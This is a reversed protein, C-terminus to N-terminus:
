CFTLDLLFTKWLSSVHDLSNLIDKENKWTDASEKVTRQRCVKIAVITGKRTTEKFVLTRDTKAILINLPRARPIKRDEETKGGDEATKGGDQGNRKRSDSRPKIAAAKDSRETPLSIVPPPSILVWNRLVERAAWPLVKIEFDLGKGLSVQWRGCELTAEEGPMINNEVPPVILYQVYFISTSSNFLILSDQDPDPYLHAHFLNIYCSEEDASRPHKLVVENDWSGGLTFKEKNESQELLIIGQSRNRRRRSTHTQCKSTDEDNLTPSGEHESSSADPSLYINEKVPFLVSKNEQLRTSYLASESKPFLIARLNPNDPLALDLADVTEVTKSANRTSASLSM